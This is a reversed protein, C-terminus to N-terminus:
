AKKSNHKRYNVVGFWLAPIILVGITYKSIEFSTFVVLATFVNNYVISFLDLRYEFIRKIYITFAMYILVLLYIVGNLPYQYHTTYDVALILFMLVLLITTFYNKLSLYKTTRNDCEELYDPIYKLLNSVDNFLYVIIIAVAFFKFTSEISTFATALIEGLFLILIVGYRECIYDINVVRISRDRVKSIIKVLKDRDDRFYEVVFARVQSMTLFTISLVIAIVSLLFGVTLTEYEHLLVLIVILELYTLRKLNAVEQGFKNSLVHVQNNHILRFMWSYVFIYFLIVSTVITLMSLQKSEVVLTSIKGLVIVFILDFFLEEFTVKIHSSDILLNHERKKRKRTRGM